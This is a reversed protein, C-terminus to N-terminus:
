RDALDQPENLNRFFLREEESIPIPQLKGATILKRILPQLSFDTGSLAHGFEAAAERPYIAALPEARNEIVPVIGRGTEVRGCLNRLYTETMFPMDIGLVLLHGTTV